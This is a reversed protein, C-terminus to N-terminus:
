PLVQTGIGDPTFIELLLAHEVRGDLVHVKAVGADLAALASEMKPRMGESLHPVLAELDDRKMESLLSTPEGLDRYLGDVNTVYVLKEARLAGAVAAAAVDANVNLTEGDSTVGLSAVVPTFGGDLLAHLLDARVESVTGVRGLEEDAAREAVLTTADIGSLGVACVGAANVRRVLEANIEGILTTRVVGISADDTVRLGGVFRPEVGHLEMARSIQPGGGHVVVVAVGVSALLAVDQAVKTALAPDDLPEGGVKVVVVRDRYSRIYPLAEVLTAAKSAATM